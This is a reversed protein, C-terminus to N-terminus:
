MKYANTDNWFISLLNTSSEYRSVLDNIIITHTYKGDVTETIKPRQEVYKEDM